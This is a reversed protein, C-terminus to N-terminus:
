RWAYVARIALALFVSFQLVNDWRSELAGFVVWLVNSAIWVVNAWWVCRREIRKRDARGLSVAPAFSILAAGIIGLVAALYTM